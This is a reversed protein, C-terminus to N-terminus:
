TCQWLLHKIFIVRAPFFLPQSEDRLCPSAPGSVPNEKTSAERQLSETIGFMRLFRREPPLLFFTFPFVILTQPLHSTVVLPVQSQELNHTVRPLLGQTLNQNKVQLVLAFGHKRLPPCGLLFNIHIARPCPYLVFLSLHSAYSLLRRTWFEQKPHRYGM